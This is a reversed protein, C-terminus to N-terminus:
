PALAGQAFTSADTAERKGRLAEKQLEILEETASKGPSKLLMADQGEVEQRNQLM